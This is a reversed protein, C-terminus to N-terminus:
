WCHESCQCRNQSGSAYLLGRPRATELGSYMSDRDVLVVSLRLYRFSRHNRLEDGSSEEAERSPQEPFHDSSKHYRRWQIINRTWFWLRKHCTLSEKACGMISREIHILSLPCATRRHHRPNKCLLLPSIYAPIMLSTIQWPSSNIAWDRKWHVSPPTILNLPNKPTISLRRSTKLERVIQVRYDVWKCMDSGLARCLMTIFTLKCAAM